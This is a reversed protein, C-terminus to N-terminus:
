GWDCTPCTHHPQASNSQTTIAQQAATSATRSGDASPQPASTTTPALLGVTISVAAVFTLLRRRM